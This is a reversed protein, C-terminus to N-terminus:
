SRWKRRTRLDGLELARWSLEPRAHLLSQRVHAIRGRFEASGNFADRLQKPLGDFQCITEVLWAERQWHSVDFV